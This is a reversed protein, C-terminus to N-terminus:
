RGGARWDSGGAKLRELLQRIIAIEDRSGDPQAADVNPTKVAAVLRNAARDVAARGELQRVDQAIHALVSLGSAHIQRHRIQRLESDRDVVQESLLVVIAKSRQHLELRLARLRKVSGGLLQQRAQLRVPLRNELRHQLEVAAQQVLDLPLFEVDEASM